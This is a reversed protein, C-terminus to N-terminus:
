RSCVRHDHDLLRQHSPSVDVKVRLCCGTSAKGETPISNSELHGTSPLTPLEQWHWTQRVALRPLLSWKGLDQVVGHSAAAIGIRKNENVIPQLM